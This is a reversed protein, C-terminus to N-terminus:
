RILLPAVPSGTGGVIPLPAMVFLGKTVGAACVQELDLFEILYGGADRIFREHGILSRDDSEFPRVEVSPNDAGVACADREALWELAALALGPWGEEAVGPDALYEAIWGTRVLVIDGPEVEEPLARSLEDPGIAHGPELREVGLARPMDAVIGRGAIAKVNEISLARAGTEASVGADYGNYLQGATAVHALADMHTFNHTETAIEDLAVSRQSLTDDERIRMRHVLPERVPYSSGAAIPIALPYVAGTEVLRAAGAVHEGTVVNLMGLKDDAGWRGWNTGFGALRRIM